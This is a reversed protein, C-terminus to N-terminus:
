PAFCPPVSVNSIRGFKPNRAELLRFSNKIPMPKMFLAAGPERQGGIPKRLPAAGNERGAPGRALGLPVFGCKWAAMLSLSCSCLGWSLDDLWCRLGDLRAQSALDDFPLGMAQLMAEGIIRLM